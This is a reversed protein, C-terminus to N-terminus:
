WYAILKLDYWYSLPSGLFKSCKGRTEAHISAAQRKQRFLLVTDPALYAPKPREKM